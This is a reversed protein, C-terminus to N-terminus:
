LKKIKLNIMTEIIFHKLIVIFKITVYNYEMNKHNNLILFFNMM